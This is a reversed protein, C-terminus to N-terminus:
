NEIFINKLLSEEKNEMLSRGGKASVAGSFQNDESILTVRGGRGGSSGDGGDAIIKGNGIIKKAIVLVDGGDGGNGLNTGREKHSKRFIGLLKKLLIEM